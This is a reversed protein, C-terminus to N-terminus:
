SPLKYKRRLSDEVPAADYTFPKAPKERFCQIRLREGPRIYLAPQEYQVIYGFQYPEFGYPTPPPLGMNPPYDTHFQQRVVYARVSSLNTIDAVAFYAFGHQLTVQAARLLAFDSAKQPDTHGNAQFTVVFQDPAIQSDEFGKGNKMPGYPTACGFLCM